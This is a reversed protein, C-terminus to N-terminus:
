RPRWRRGGAPSGKVGVELPRRVHRGAEGGPWSRVFRHIRVTARLAAPLTRGPMEDLELVPLRQQRLLGIVPESEEPTLLDFYQLSVEQPLLSCARLTGCLRIISHLSERRLPVSETLLSRSHQLDLGTRISPTLQGLVCESRKDGNM